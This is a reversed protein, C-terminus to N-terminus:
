GYVTIMNDNTVRVMNPKEQNPIGHPTKQKHPPIIGIKRDKRKLILVDSKKSSCIIMNNNDLTAQTTDHIKNKINISSLMMLTTTKKHKIIEAKKPPILVLFIFNQIYIWIDFGM